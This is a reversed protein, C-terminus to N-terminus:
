GNVRRKAAIPNSRVRNVRERRFREAAKHSRSRELMAELLETNQPEDDVILIRKPQNLKM